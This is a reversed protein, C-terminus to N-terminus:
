AADPGEPRIYGTMDKPKNELRRLWVPRFPVPKEAKRQKIRETLTIIQAM